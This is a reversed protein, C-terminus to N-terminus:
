TGRRVLYIGEGHWLVDLDTVSWTELGVAPDGINIRDAGDFNFLVVTHSVGPIWGWHQQYRPDVSAGRELGVSLIMPGKIMAALEQRTGIFPRVDWATDRTKIKLGRYLGLLSTGKSTTLCLQAMEAETAPISHSQLLTAAAAPGCTAPSTQRCVGDRWKDGVAPMKAFLPWNAQYLCICVLPVIVILRRRLSGQILPWALGVLLGGEMPLVDGVVILNTLPLAEALRLNDHWSTGSYFMLALTLIALLITAWKPASRAVKMGALALAASFAYIIILGLYIDAVVARGTGRLLM